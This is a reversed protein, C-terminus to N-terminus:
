IKKVPSAPEVLNQEGDLKGVFGETNAIVRGRMM